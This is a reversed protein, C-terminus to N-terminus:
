IDYKPIGMFIKGLIADKTAQRLMEETRKLKQASEELQRNTNARHAAEEGERIRRDELLAEIRESALQRQNHNPASSATCLSLIRQVKSSRLPMLIMVTPNDHTVQENLQATLSEIKLMCQDVDREPRTAGSRAAVVPDYDILQQIRKRDEIEQLRLEDNEAQLALLRQREEFLFAHADSLAQVHPLAPM